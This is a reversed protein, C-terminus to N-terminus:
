KGGTKTVRHEGVHTARGDRHELPEAMGDDERSPLRAATLHVHIAAVEVFRTREDAMVDLRKFVCQLGTLHYDRRRPRTDSRDAMLVRHHGARLARRFQRFPSLLYGGTGIFQRFQQDVYKADGIDTRVVRM